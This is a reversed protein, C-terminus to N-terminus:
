IKFAVRNIISRGLTLEDTYELDNGVAIGKSLTSIILEERRPLKKYIYYGTTDGEITARLAFIIEKVPSTSIRSILTDIHLDAPGVGDMPSIIGGLVHYIGHYQGTAEISMLDRIDEVICITGTDRQPDVCIECTEQDTINHCQNCERISEKFQLISNTFQEVEEKNRHLIHLAFRLATKRGIGPLTAFQEVAKEVLKSSFSQM